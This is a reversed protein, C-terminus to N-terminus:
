RRDLFAVTEVEATQPFRDFPQLSTLRYGSGTLRDLDRALIVPDCSVYIIKPAKATLMAELAQPQLGKRPPKCVILDIESLQRKAEKIKEAM